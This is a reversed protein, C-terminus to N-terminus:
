APNFVGVVGLGKGQFYQKIDAPLQLNGNLIKKLGKGTGIYRFSVVFGVSFFSGTRNLYRNRHM